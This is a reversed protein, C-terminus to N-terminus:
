HVTKDVVYVYRKRPRKYVSHKKTNLEENNNINIYKECTATPREAGTSSSLSSKDCAFLDTENSLENSDIQDSSYFFM